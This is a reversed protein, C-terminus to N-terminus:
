IRLSLPAFASMAEPDSASAALSAAAASGPRIRQIVSSALPGNLLKSSARAVMGTVGMASSLPPDAM